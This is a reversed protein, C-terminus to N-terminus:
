IGARWEGEHGEVTKRGVAGLEMGQVSQSPTRPFKEWCERLTQVGRPKNRDLCKGCHVTIREKNRQWEGLWLLSRMPLLKTKIYEAGREYHSPLLHKYVLPIFSYTIHLYFSDSKSFPKALKVTQKRIVLIYLVWDRSQSFVNRSNGRKDETYPM